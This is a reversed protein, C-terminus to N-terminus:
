IINNHIQFVTFQSYKLKTKNQRRKLAVATAYSLEWALPLILTKAALMLWLLVLDWDKVQVVAWPLALDKVWQTLDPILGADEQISTLNM